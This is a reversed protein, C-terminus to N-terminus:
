DLEPLGKGVIQYFSNSDASLWPKGVTLDAKAGKVIIIAPRPFRKQENKLLARMLKRSRHIPTSYDPVTATIPVFFGYKM